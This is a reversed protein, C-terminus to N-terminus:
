SADSRAVTKRTRGWWILPGSIALVPLSLAALLSIIRTPWGLIEGTHMQQNWLKFNPGESLLVKGTTPDLALMTRRAPSHDEVYSVRVRVPNKLGGIGEIAMIKAGPQERSAIKEIEGVTLPAAGPAPPVPQAMVPEPRGLWRNVVRTADREWFVGLGTIAFILLSVSVYVGLANHIEFNRRRGSTSGSLKFLKQRTWLVVGTLSLVILSGAGLATIVRGTDGLFLTRHFKRLNEVFQNRSNQAGMVEATYPNVYVGMSKGETRPRLSVLAAENDAVPLTIATVQRQPDAQELRGLLDGLPLREGQTPVHMLKRNFAVHLEKEFALLCGTTSSVLLLAAAILGAVLHLYQITKRFTMRDVM